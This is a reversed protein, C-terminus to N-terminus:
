QICLNRSACAFASQALAPMERFHSFRTASSASPETLGEGISHSVPIVSHNWLENSVLWVRLLVRPCGKLAIYRSIVAVVRRIWVRCLVVRELNALPAVVFTLKSARTAASGMLAPLLGWSASRVELIFANHVMTTCNHVMLLWPALMVVLMCRVIRHRLDIPAVTDIVRRTAGLRLRLRLWVVWMIVCIGGVLVWMCVNRRLDHVLIGGCAFPFGAFATRGLKIVLACMESAAGCNVM